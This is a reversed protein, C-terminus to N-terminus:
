LLKLAIGKGRNGEYQVDTGTRHTHTHTHMTSFQQNFSAEKSCQQSQFTKASTTIRVIRHHKIWVCSLVVARSVQGVVQESICLFLSIRAHPARQRSSQPNVAIFYKFPGSSLPVLTKLNTRGAPTQRPRRQDSTRLLYVSTPQM